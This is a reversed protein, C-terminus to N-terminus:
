ENTAPNRRTNKSRLRPVSNGDPRVASLSGGLPYNWLMLGGDKPCRPEPPFSDEAQWRYRFPAIISVQIYVTNFWFALLSLFSLSHYNFFVIPCIMQACCVPPKIKDPSIGIFLAPIATPIIM